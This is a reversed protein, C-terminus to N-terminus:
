VLPDVITLIELMIRGATQDANRVLLDAVFHSPLDFEHRALRDGISVAVGHDPGVSADIVITHRTGSFTISAWPRERKLVVQHGPGLLSQIQEVLLPGMDKVSKKKCRRMALPDHRM